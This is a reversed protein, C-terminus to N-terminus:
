VNILLLGSFDQCSSDSSFTSRESTIKLVEGVALEVNNNEVEEVRIKPGQLDQLISVHTNLEANIARIHEIVQKHGDHTGHSFNLRFVDVGALVLEKLTTADSSAPGVTSVIKTKNFKASEM